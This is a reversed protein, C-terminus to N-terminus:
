FAPFIEFDNGAKIEQYEQFFVMRQTNSGTMKPPWSTPTRDWNEVVWSDFMAHINLQWRQNAWPLDCYYGMFGGNFGMLDGYFGM